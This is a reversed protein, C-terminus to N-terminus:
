VLRLVRERCSARGIQPIATLLIQNPQRSEENARGSFLIPAVNRTFSVRLYLDGLLPDFLEHRVAEPSFVQHAGEDAASYQGKLMAGVLNAVHGTLPVRGPGASKGQVIVLDPLSTLGDRLNPQRLPRPPFLGVIPLVQKRRYTNQSPASM